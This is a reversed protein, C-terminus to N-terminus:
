FTYEMTLMVRREVAPVKIFGQSDILTESAKDLLNEGKAKIQM